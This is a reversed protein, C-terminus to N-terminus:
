LDKINKELEIEATESDKRDCTEAFSKYLAKERHKFEQMIVGDEDQKLREGVMKVLKDKNNELVGIFKRLHKGNMRAILDKWKKRQEVSLLPNTNLLELAQARLNTM